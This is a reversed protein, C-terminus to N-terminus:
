GGARVDRLSWGAIERVTPWLDFAEIEVPRCFWLGNCGLRIQRRAAERVMDPTPREGAAVDFGEALFVPGMVTSRGSPNRLSLLDRTAAQLTDMGLSMLYMPAHEDILQEAEWARWDQHVTRLADESGFRGSNFAAIPLDIGSAALDARVERIFRNVYRSKHLIWRPDNVAPRTGAPLGHQRAFSQLAPGDYGHRGFEKHFDRGYFPYRIFDLALGDVPYNQVYEALLRRKFRRVEVHAPSLMHQDPRDDVDRTFAEPHDRTFERCKSIFNGFCAIDGYVEIGSDHAKQCFAAIYDPTGAPPSPAVTSPYEEEQFSAYARTVGNERLREVLRRVDDDSTQGYGEWRGEATRRLGIGGYYALVPRDPDRALRRKGAGAHPRFRIPPDDGEDPPRDARAGPAFALAGATMGVTALFERRSPHAMTRDSEGLARM